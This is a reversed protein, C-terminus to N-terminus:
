VCAYVCSCINSRLEFCNSNAMNHFSSCLMSVKAKELEKELSGLDTPKTKESFLKEVDENLTEVRSTTDHCQKALPELDEIQKKRDDSCHILRSFRSTLDELEQSIQEREPGTEDEPIDGLAAM